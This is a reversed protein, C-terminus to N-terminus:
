AMDPTYGRLIDMIDRRYVNDGLVGGDPDFSVCRVDRPDEIYPNEPVAGTFYEALYKKANGEPFIVNGDSAGIGMERFGALIERTKMNYPNDDAASVLWAPQIRLPIGQRALEGAFGKVIDLPITEQHFADASLLVDNVGCAGLAAAADAIRGADKSFYGNTIIQRKPVGMERAAAHIRYVAEPYLMPEGGFTMVTRIPYAAALKRVADAATDPDIHTGRAAHEGESCHRCRGTCAYTIVFEVKTLNRFYPNVPLEKRM